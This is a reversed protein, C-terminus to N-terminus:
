RACYDSYQPSKPDCSRYEFFNLIRIIGIASTLNMFKKM